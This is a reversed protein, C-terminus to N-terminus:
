GHAAGRIEELTTVEHESMWDDLETLVRRLGAAGHRHAVTALGVASAGALIMEIADVGRLVGGTGIVPVDFARTLDYVMKVAIPRLAAGSIGGSRNSLVPRRTEVDIVMGPMTNSVTLLDAGADLVDHAIDLLNPVNPALKVSMPCRAGGDILGAKAARTAEAATACATAFPTGFADEVNPCSINVETLEPKVAALTKGVEYFRDVTDAFFSVVLVVGQQSLQTKLARLGEVADAAGPNKLGVANILGPGWDHLTPESHGTRPEPGISNMTLAGIGSRGLDAAETGWPSAALVLPSQLTLPGLHTTLDPLIDPM